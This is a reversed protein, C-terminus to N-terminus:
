RARRLRGLRIVRLGSSALSWLSRRGNIISARPL